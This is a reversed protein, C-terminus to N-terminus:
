EFHAGVTAYGRMSVEVWETQAAASLIKQCHEKESLINGSAQGFKRSSRATQSNKSNQAQRQNAKAEWNNLTSKVFAL